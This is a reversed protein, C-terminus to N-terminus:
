WTLRTAHDTKRKSMKIYGLFQLEAVARTFRAQIQPDIQEQDDENFDVVSRFAQLWDYLNIMRGCELHLKYMVSIDPLSPLLQTNERLNCCKCQLYFHPNNLAMHLAARPAGIINRKVTTIDSFVFLEHLAPAKQLPGLHAGVIEKEIYDLTEQVSKAFDSVPKQEKSMQLLKDKLDQRSSVQKLEEPSTVTTQQQQSKNTDMGAMVVKTLLEKVEHLKSIVIEECDASLEIKEHIEQEFFEQTQKIAKSIKAVFEDKSMFALIQWCEKYEPQSCIDKALCTAFLERRFKGLPCKPLDEVLVTLFELFIRYLIFYIHCDKLLSPLKKKLYDDDTLIAIIRKCDNISEVYPRFSLQKRIVEMDDHTLAKIKTLSTSYNCCLAYANGQFFHEMLCYKFGQIFGNISFDYYLFIHTLFKFAKGSLHFPYIPSLIVKELIENLGVPASQTKFIRLKIKSTVHYPLANHVAAISTAIGLILMFPVDTCNSSLILILDQLISSNFCEFDPLIVILMHRSEVNRATSDISSADTESNVDMEDTEPLNKKPWNNRYWTKLQKMTCQSKRLRKHDRDEDDEHPAEIFNYVMTEVASKLSSCDRSQLLCISASIQENIRQSLNDFQELHDPQNIGTLLAAAPVIEDLGLNNEEDKSQAVVYEVLEQLTKGSSEKQMADINTQIKNWLDAYVSYFPQDTIEKGLIGTQNAQAKKRKTAKKTKDARTAGNKFVFCGKSVSITSDM